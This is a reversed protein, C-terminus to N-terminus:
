LVGDYGQERLAEVLKRVAGEDNRYAVLTADDTHVVICNEIGVLTVVHNSDSYVINRNSDVLCGPGIVTNGNSDTPNLRSMSEWTGVDDWDFTAEVVAIETEKELVAYDISISPMQSFEDALNKEWNPTGLHHRLHELREGIEPQHRQLCDLITQAKWLFIGSNWFFRGTDLYNQATELDPKERFSEVRFVGNSFNEGQEIYGFGTAPENPRIGFLVLKKPDSEIVQVATAISNQFEEHPDILHDAPMVLMLAEPDQSAIMMAALGICPATNRQCPEAIIQSDPLEPLHNMTLDALSEGTVVWFQEPPIMPQCRDLVSQILSRNRGLSLFQKPEAVRSLPWFRTGSGGAMIVAHLM